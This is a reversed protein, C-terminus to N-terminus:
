GPYEPWNAPNTMQMQKMGQLWWCSMVEADIRNAATQRGAPEFEMSSTMLTRDRHPLNAEDLDDVDNGAPSLYLLPVIAVL